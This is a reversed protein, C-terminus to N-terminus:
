GDDGELETEFETESVVGPRRVAVAKASVVITSAPWDM